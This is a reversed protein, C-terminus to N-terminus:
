EFAQSLKSELQSLRDKIEKSEKITQTYGNGILLAQVIKPYLEVLDPIHKVYNAEVINRPKHQTWLLLLDEPLYKKLETAALQRIYKPTTKPNLKFAKLNNRLTNSISRAELDFINDNIGRHHIKAFEKIEEYLGKHIVNFIKGGKKGTKARKKQIYYFNEDFQQFDSLKLEIIDAPNLGGFLYMIKLILKYKPNLVKYLKEIDERSLKLFTNTNNEVKDMLKHNARYEEGLRGLLGQVNWVHVRLSNKLKSEQRNPFKKIQVPLEVEIWHNFFNAKKNSNLKLFAEWSGFEEIISPYIRNLSQLYRKLTKRTIYNDKLWDKVIPLEKLYTLDLERRAV